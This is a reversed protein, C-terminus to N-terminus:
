LDLPVGPVPRVGQPPPPAPRLSTCVFKAVGAENRPCLLLPRREPYLERFQSSFHEVYALTVEEKQTNRRMTAHMTSVDLQSLRSSKTSRHGDYTVLTAM